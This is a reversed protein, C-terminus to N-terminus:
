PKAKNLPLCPDGEHIVHERISQLICCNTGVLLTVFNGECFSSAHFSIQIQYYISCRKGQMNMVFLDNMSSMLCLCLASFDVPGSQLASPMCSKSRMM